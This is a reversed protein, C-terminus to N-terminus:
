PLAGEEIWRHVLGIETDDVWELEDRLRQRYFLILCSQEPDGPVVRLTDNCLTTVSPVNLLADYAADVDPMYLDAGPNEGGHCVGNTTCGEFISGNYYVFPPDRIVDFMPWIDVEFSLPESSTGAGGGAGAGGTGAGGTGGAGAGGSAGDGGAGGSSSPMGAM